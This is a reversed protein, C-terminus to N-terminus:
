NNIFKFLIEIQDKSFGELEEPLDELTYKSFEIEVEEELFNSFHFEKEKCSIILDKRDENFKAMAKEFQNRDKPIFYNPSKEECHNTYIEKLSNIYFVYDEGFLSKKIEQILEFQEKLKFKNKLLIIQVKPSVSKISDIQQFYKEVDKLKM